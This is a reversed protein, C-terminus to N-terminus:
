TLKLAEIKQILTDIDDNNDIFYDIKDKNISLLQLKKLELAENIPM